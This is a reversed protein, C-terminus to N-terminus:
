VGSVRAARAPVMVVSLAGTGPSTRIWLGGLVVMMSSGGRDLLVGAQVVVMSSSMRPVMCELRRSFGTRFGGACLHCCTPLIEHYRVM